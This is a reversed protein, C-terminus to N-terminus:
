LRCFFLFFSPNKAILAVDVSNKETKAKWGFTFLVEPCWLLLNKFVTRPTSIKSFSRNDNDHLSHTLLKDLMVRLTKDGSTVSLFSNFIRRAASYNQRVDLHKM